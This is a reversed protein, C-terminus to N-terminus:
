SQGPNQQTDAVDTLTRMARRIPDPLSEWASIIRALQQDDPKPLSPRPSTGQHSGRSQVLKRELEAQLRQNEGRRSEAESQMERLKSDSAVTKEALARVAEALRENMTLLQQKLQHCERRLEPNEQCQRRLESLERRLDQREGDWLKRAQIEQQMAQDREHTRETVLKALGQVEPDNQSDAPRYGPTDNGPSPPGHLEEAAKAPTQDTSGAVLGGESSDPPLHIDHMTAPAHTHKLEELSAVLSSHRSQLEVIRTREHELQAQSRETQAFKDDLEIRLHQKEALQAQLDTMLRQRVVHHADREALLRQTEARQEALLCQDAARQMELQKFKEQSGTAGVAMKEELSRRDVARQAELQQRHEQFGKEAAAMKEELSRRDAAHQAELQKYKEQFGKDAAAMKEELSRVAQDREKRIETLTRESEARVQSMAAIQKKLEDCERRYAPQEEIQRRHDSLQRRLEQRESDFSKRAQIEKQSAEDRERTRSALLKALFVVEPEASSESPSLAVEPSSSPQRLTENSINVPAVRIQKAVENPAISPM